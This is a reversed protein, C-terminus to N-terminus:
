FIVLTLFLMVVIVLESDFFRSEGMRSPMATQIALADAVVALGALVLVVMTGWLVAAGNGLREESADVDRFAVFGRAVITPVSAVM